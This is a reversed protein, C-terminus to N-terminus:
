SRRPEKPLLIRFLFDHAADHNRIAKWAAFVEDARAVANDTSTRSWRVANDYDATHRLRMLQIFNKAVVGLESSASEPNGKNEELLRECVALVKSHDVTRALMSRQREVKWKSAGEWVILHFVAYYATSVARRLSAQKPHRQERRALHHALELLEDPFSM